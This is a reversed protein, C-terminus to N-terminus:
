YEGSLQLLRQQLEQEVQQNYLLQQLQANASATACQQAVPLAVTVPPLSASASMAMQAQRQMSPVFMTPDSASYGGHQGLLLPQSYLLQNQQQQNLSQARGSPLYLQPLPENGLYSPQMAAATMHQPHGYLSAQQQQTQMQHLTYPTLDVSNRRPNFVSADSSSSSNFQLDLSSSRTSSNSYQQLYHQQMGPTMPSFAAPSTPLGALFHPSRDTAARNAAAAHNLGRSQAASTLSGQRSLGQSKVQCQCGSGAPASQQQQTFNGFEGSTRASSCSRFEGSTRASGSSPSSTGGSQGQSMANFQEAVAALNNRLQNNRMERPMSAFPNKSNAGVSKNGTSKTGNGSAAPAGPRQVAYAATGPTHASVSLNAFNSLGDSGDCAQHQCAAQSVMRYNNINISASVFM